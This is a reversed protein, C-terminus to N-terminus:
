LIDLEQSGHTWWASAAVIYSRAEQTVEVQHRDVREVIFGHDADEGCQHVGVDPYAFEKEKNAGNIFKHHTFMKIMENTSGGFLRSV